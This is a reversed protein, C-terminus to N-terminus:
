FIGNLKHFLETTQPFQQQVKPDALWKKLNGFGARHAVALLGSPTVKAGGVEKSAWDPIEKKIAAFDDNVAKVFVRYQLDADALFKDPGPQLAPIWDAIWVKRGNVMEQRPNTALKLDVLRPMGMGFLGLHYTPTIAKPNSGRLAMVWANWPEDAVATFPSTYAAAPTKKAQVQKAKAALAAALPKNGSAHVAVAAAAIKRPDDSAVIKRVNDAPSPAPLKKQENEAAHARSAAAFLAILLGLSFLIGPM